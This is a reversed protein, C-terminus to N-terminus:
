ISLGSLLTDATDSAGRTKWGQICGASCCFRLVLDGPMGSDARGTRDRVGCVRFGVFAGECKRASVHVYM